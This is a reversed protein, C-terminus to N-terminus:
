CCHGPLLAKANTAVGVRTQGSAPFRHACCL